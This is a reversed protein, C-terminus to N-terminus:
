RLGNDTGGPCIRRREWDCITAKWLTLLCREMWPGHAALLTEVPRRRELLVPVLVLVLVLVMVLLPLVRKLVLLM